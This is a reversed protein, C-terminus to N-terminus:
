CHEYCTSTKMYTYIHGRPPRKTPRVCGATVRPAFRLMNVANDSEDHGIAPANTPDDSMWLLAVQPDIDAADVLKDPNLIRLRHYHFELVGDSRLSRLVRNVHVGTLGTADGIHEQTLPLHMEEIHHGPWRMRYRVFLELLLHVVRERATHRGVSLLRDYALGRDRGVVWALQMGVEPHKGLVSYLNEYPVVGVVADTLAQASYTMVRGPVFALVAGPLAFHLIQRRGDEMLSYLAVWGDVLRYLANRKEGFNFLDSGAEFRRDGSRCRDLQELLDTACNPSFGDKRTDLARDTKPITQSLKLISTM